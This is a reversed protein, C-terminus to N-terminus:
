KVQSARLRNWVCRVLTSKSVYSATAKCLLSFRIKAKGKNSGEYLTLKFVEQTRGCLDFWKTLDPTFSIVINSFFHNRCYEASVADCKFSPLYLYIKM